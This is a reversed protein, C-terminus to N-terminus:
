TGHRTLPTYAAAQHVSVGQPKAKRTRRASCTCAATGHERRVTRTAAVMLVLGDSSQSSEPADRAHAAKAMRVWRVRLRGVRGRAGSVLGSAERVRKCSGGPFTHM